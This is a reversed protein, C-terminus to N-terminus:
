YIKTPRRKSKKSKGYGRPYMETILGGKAEKKVKGSGIGPIFVSLIKIIDDKTFGLGRLQAKRKLFGNDKDSM